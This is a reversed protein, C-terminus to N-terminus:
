NAALAGASPTKTVIRTRIGCTMSWGAADDRHDAELRSWAQHLAVFMDDLSYGPASVCLLDHAARVSAVQVRSNDRQQPMTVSQFLSNQMRSNGEGGGQRIFCGVSVRQMHILFIM